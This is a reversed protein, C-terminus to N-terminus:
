MSEPETAFSFRQTKEESTYKGERDRMTWRCWEGERGM